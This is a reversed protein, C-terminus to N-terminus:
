TNRFTWGPEVRLFAVGAYFLGASLSDEQCSQFWGYSKSTYTGAGSFGTDPALPQGLENLGTAKRCNAQRPRFIVDRVYQVDKVRVGSVVEYLDDIAIDVERRSSSEFPKGFHSPGIVSSNIQLQNLFEEWLYEPTPTCKPSYSTLIKQCCGGLYNMTFRFDAPQDYFIVETPQLARDFGIQMGANAIKRVLETSGDWLGGARQGVENIYTAHWIGVALAIRAAAMHDGSARALEIESLLWRWPGDVLDNDAVKGLRRGEAVLVRGASWQEFDTGADIIKECM